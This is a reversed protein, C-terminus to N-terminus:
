IKYRVKWGTKAVRAAIMTSCGCILAAGAWIQAHLYNGGNRDILAGALPPGTLCALSVISFGMGMRTGAKKLDTTLSSLTAPWMSQIGSSFFGYICAFTYVGPRDHVGTWAFLMVGTCFAIPIITNMPGFKLDACYNPILRGFVGVGNMLLLLSISETYSIGIINRGYAGVYYFAFYLGWFNLFMGVCYLVYTSEKFASWEVLAGSKRAPIRTRMLAIVLAYLGMMTFGLARITWAFGVRPLLQQVMAPFVLGGTASGCAAFGIALSRKKVFYTSILGMTPTFQMGNGLGTCLGQALFLQWYTTCLSTMFVGFLQLLVGAIFVHYFYGGDLARGSFTGVFFLLFIQLSGVWSVDSPSLNLTETFYTQFVGYSSIYGWTNFIVLHGMCVQTWARLGGDPPPGPDKWSKTSSVARTLPPRLPPQQQPTVSPSLSMQSSHKKTVPSHDTIDVHEEKVPTDNPTHSVENTNVGSGGGDQAPTM